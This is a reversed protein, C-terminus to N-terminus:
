HRPRQPRPRKPSPALRPHPRPRQTRHPRTLPSRLPRHHRHDLHHHRPTPALALQLSGDAINLSAGVRLNLGLTDTQRTSVLVLEAQGLEIFLSYPEGKDAPTIVPPLKADLTAAQVLGSVEPPLITSLDLNLIGSDWVNFLLGNILSLRAAIQLPRTIYFPTAPADASAQLLPIGPAEPFHPTQDTGATLSLTADLADRRGPILSTVGGSFQINFAPLPPTDVPISQGALAEDLSIFIGSLLDPLADLFSGNIATLLVDELTGRLASEALAFVANAEPSTFQSTAEEIALQIDTVEVEYPADASLKQAKVVILASVSATIGGSLDLSIGEFTLGGATTAQLAPISIYLDLGEDTLDIAVQPQGLTASTVSLNFTDGEIIPNPIQSQLDVYRLVLELIDALDQTLVPEGPTIVLPADDDFFSQAIKLLLGDPLTLQAQTRDAPLAMYEAAWLVDLAAESQVNQVGDSAVAEVHNVGFRSPVQLTFTGGEGIPAQQGNIYVTPEGHSDTVVGAVEFADGIPGVLFEGPAPKTLTITPPSQDVVVQAQGCLDPIDAVCAEFVLVGEAATIWLTPNPPDSADPIAAADPSTKWVLEIGPMEVGDSGFVVASATIEQDLRYIARSPDLSVQVFAPM